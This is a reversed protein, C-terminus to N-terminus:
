PIGTTIIYQKRLEDGVNKMWRQMMHYHLLKYSIVAVNTFVPSILYPIISNTNFIKNDNWVCAFSAINCDWVNM